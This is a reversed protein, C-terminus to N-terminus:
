IRAFETAGSEAQGDGTMEDFEHVPMNSRFADRTLAGIEPKREVQFLSLRSRSGGGGIVWRDEGALREQHDIGTIRTAQRELLGGVGGLHDHM